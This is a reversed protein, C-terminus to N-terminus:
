SLSHQASIHAQQLILLRLEQSHSRMLLVAEMNLAQMRQQLDTSDINQTTKQRMGNSITGVKMSTIMLLSFPLTLPVM